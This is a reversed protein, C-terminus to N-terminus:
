WKLYPKQKKWFVEKNSLIWTKGKTNNGQFFLFTRGDDNTFICPHGSESANWSGPKGNRMFPEGSLRKWTIGDSSEAVGIQQPDNNYSGAYFMFLKGYRQTITAGEVCQGEWDHIPYLISETCAQKWCNRSFDCGAPAVAVGQEQIKFDPTRTAFYLFYQNKFFVVEADIARGCTWNGEPHFIPNSPDRYIHVGDTTYAHCIADKKDNGYIQYFLHLTDNRVLGGPACLGKAEYPADEAPKMEGIKKWDVLNHSEAIGINWGNNTSNQYPPISYYMLYRGGFHAIFPDKSFPVGKRDTDKYFMMKQGVKIPSSCACIIFSLLILILQRM